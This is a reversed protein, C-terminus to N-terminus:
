EANILLTKLYVVALPPVKISLSFAQNHWPVDEALLIGNIQGSGGFCVEDSNFVETYEGLYPVGIRYGERVVPTFNCVIILFEGPNKGLRMFTIVSQSYDHPDIWQFGNEHHDLQWLAKETKYFHNLTKVYHHMKKHLDFDLLHWDLSKNEDWEIFQAFEGGMFLLKKGPHAMMYGFLLRLNAFKQWYDGPMRNLLSKKGHVVEDHSLPLIYNESFTYMFSFTLLNHHWKRHIPDMQMYRLIDNMWGMNWKYNYGLGGLFTPSTVLPWTTSEEAIMLANPHYEFVFENLKKMFSIAELNEKGGFRNVLWQGQQKGYDLYLMYAVADVRLGDIHYVDLWFLASSILFSQIEPKAYDFNLTGWQQNEAQLDNDSEYLPLGDFRGLGHCDKCFHAPVWDLIVGIGRQHCQDVFYMFDHPTGYRSTISYFGTLQYGWSADLPYEMIPLLEIHTYGMACVYDILQDALTRYDLFDHGQRRWSGLHVEYINIPREYLAEKTKGEQYAADQWQYGTLNIVRSATDPRMESYFAYPDSKLLVGGQGTFIEYKYIANVQLGPVFLVWVQHDKARHMRHQHGQWNNFDGVIRVEVAHPAWLAFRVGERGDQQMVHAGFIEYARTHSGEHFLYLNIEGPFTNM